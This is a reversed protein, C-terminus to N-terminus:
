LCALLGQKWMADLRDVANGDMSCALKPRVWIWLQVLDMLALHQEATRQASKQCASCCVCCCFWTLLGKPHGITALFVSAKVKATASKGVATDFDMTVRKAYEAPATNSVLLIEKWTAKGKYRANDWREQGPVFHDMELIEYSLGACCSFFLLLLLALLCSALVSKKAAVM